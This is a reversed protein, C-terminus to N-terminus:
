YTKKRIKDWNLSEVFSTAAPGAELQVGDVWVNRNKPDVNVVKFEWTDYSRTFTFTYTYRQWDQGVKFTTELTFYGSRIEVPLNTAESKLYMSLTYVQGTQMPTIATSDLISNVGYLKFSQKGRWFTNTDIVGCVATWKPIGLADYAAKLNPNYGIARNRYEVFWGDPQGPNTSKEFSGNYVLNLAQAAPADAARALGIGALVWAMFGLAISRMMKETGRM